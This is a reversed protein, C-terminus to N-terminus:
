PVFCVSVPRPSESTCYEDESPLVNYLGGVKALSCGTARIEKRASDADVGRCKTDFGIVLIRVLSGHGVCGPHVEQLDKSIVDLEGCSSIKRLEPFVPKLATGV